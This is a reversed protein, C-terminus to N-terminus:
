QDSSSEDVVHWGRNPPIFDRALANQRLPKAVALLVTLPRDDAIASGGRLEAVYLRVVPQRLVGGFKEVDQM